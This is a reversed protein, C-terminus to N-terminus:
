ATELPWRAPAGAEDLILVEGGVVVSDCCAMLVDLAGKTFVVQAGPTAVHGIEVLGRLLESVTGADGRIDGLLAHVTTMRKRESDFPLEGVRPLVVELEAKDLGYHRAVTVLATETPDGHLSGDAATTTDNCLAGGALLLRMTRAGRVAPEAATGGALESAPDATMERVDGAMELTVVTMQNQTLTGTKDSCIITVSGLTEVAYLRRILVNRNLMRQAGLALTITM